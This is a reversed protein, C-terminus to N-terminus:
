FHRKSDHQKGQVLNPASQAVIDAMIQSSARLVTDNFIYTQDFLVIM